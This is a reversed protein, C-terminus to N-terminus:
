RPRAELRKLSEAADRSIATPVESKALRRLLDRAEPTGIQELVEIARLDRLQDPQPIAAFNADLIRNIRSRAEVSVAGALAKRLPEESQDFHNQLERQARDRVSYEKADLDAICAKIREAPISPAPHLRTRLFEVTNKPDGVLAWKSRYAEDPKANRLRDWHTAVDRESLNSSFTRSRWEPRTMDWGMITTDDSGTLLRRGDPTYQVTETRPNGSATAFRKGSPVDWLFVPSGARSATAITLGDPSFAFSKSSVFALKDPEIEKFGFRQQGTALEWLRIMGGTGRTAITRGDPSLISGFWLDYKIDFHRVIRKALVDWVDIGTPKEEDSTTV